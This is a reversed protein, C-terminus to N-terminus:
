SRKNTKKKHKYQILEKKMPKEKDLMRQRSQKM